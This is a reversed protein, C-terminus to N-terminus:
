IILFASLQTGPLSHLLILKHLCNSQMSFNSFCYDLLLLSKKPLQLGWSKRTSGCHTFKGCFSDMVLGPINKMQGNLCWKPMVTSANPCTRNSAWYWCAMIHLWLSNKQKEPCALIGNELHSLLLHMQHGEFKRM